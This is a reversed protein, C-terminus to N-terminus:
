KEIWYVRLAVWGSHPMAEAKGARLGLLAAVKEM